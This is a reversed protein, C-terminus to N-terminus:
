GDHRAWDYPVENDHPAVRFEDPQAYHYLQDPVNVVLSIPSGLGKFGHLVGCPIQVRVPHIPGLFFENVAGQTPSGERCDYLALKILGHVCIFNDTQREHYHWGKVVGENVATLYTQGFGKFDPADSRLMEMLYGREDVIPKLPTVVVGDILQKVPPKFATKQM